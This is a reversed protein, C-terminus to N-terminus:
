LDPNEARVVPQKKTYDFYGGCLYQRIKNQRANNKADASKAASNLHYTIQAM